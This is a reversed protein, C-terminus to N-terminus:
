VRTAKRQIRAGRPTMILQDHETQHALIPRWDHEAKQKAGINSIWSEMIILYETNM